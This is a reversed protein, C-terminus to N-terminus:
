PRSRITRVARRLTAENGALPIGDRVVDDLVGGPEYVDQLDDLGVDLVRADNGTWSAVQSSLDQVQAAWLSDDVAIGSPRLVFLDLDSDPREQGRAASGFLAAYAVPLRWSALSAAIRRLLEARLDALAVILPAALHGRNLAYLLASGARQRSVIGQTVLRALAARAGDQSSGVARALERGTFGQDARALVELLDADLTPAVVRLPHSLEM